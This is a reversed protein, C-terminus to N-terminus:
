KTLHDGIDLSNETKVFLSNFLDTPLNKKAIDFFRSMFCTKAYAPNQMKRHKLIRQLKTISVNTKSRATSARKYSYLDIKKGQKSSMELFNIYCKISDSKEQLKDILEALEDISDPPNKEPNLPLEGDIDELPGESKKPTKSTFFSFM